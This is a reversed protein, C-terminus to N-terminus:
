IVVAQIAEIIELNFMEHNALGGTVETSPEVEMLM